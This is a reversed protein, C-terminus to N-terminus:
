NGQKQAPESSRDEAAPASGASGGGRGGGRAGRYGGRNGGRGRNGGTRTDTGQTNPCERAFHGAQGCTYCNWDNGGDQESKPHVEAKGPCENQYHDESGCKFCQGTRPGHTERTGFNQQGGRGRGRRGGRVRPGQGSAGQPAQQPQTAYFAPYAQQFDSTTQDVLLPANQGVSAVMRKGQGLKETGKVVYDFYYALEVANMLTKPRGLRIHHELVSPGCQKLFRELSMRQITAYDGPYAKQCLSEIAQAFERYNEKPDKMRLESESVYTATEEFAGFRQEMADVFHEYTDKHEPQLGNAYSEADGRLSLILRELQTAKNWKNTKAIREFYRYYDAWDETAKTGKYVRKYDVVDKRNSIVEKSSSSVEASQVRGQKDASERKMAKRAKSSQKPQEILEGVCDGEVDEPGEGCVKVFLWYGVIVGLVLAVGGIWHKYVEFFDVATEQVICYIGEVADTGKLYILYLVLVVAILAGVTIVTEWDWIKKIWEKCRVVLKKKPKQPKQLGQKNLMSKKKGSAVKQEDESADGASGDSDPAAQDADIGYINVIDGIRPDKQFAVESGTDDEKPDAM